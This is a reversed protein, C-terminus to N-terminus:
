KVGVVTISYIGTGKEKLVAIEEESIYKLLVEDPISILKEKKVEVKKFGTDTIVKLYDNKQIAGSVCGAYMEAANKLNLPLEGELVVDSISFHGGSKLVRHIQAFAKEKNPVLNLVCNSVVVDFNSDKLPMEEIDGKVFEVNSFNLKKANERAKALMADTFDLGTVHGEEGVLSRAVFCDNGAGSGLDLVANGKSIGAYQTPLGCGLGLDADSNYGELDKYDDAFVAYDVTDCCGTSGCCSAENFQKSQHAIEGYKEKVILKLDEAKM